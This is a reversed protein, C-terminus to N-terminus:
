DRSGIVVKSYYLKGEQLISLFYVGEPLKDVEIDQSSKPAQIKMMCQGNMAYLVMEEVPLTTEVRLSTRAPNPYIRAVSNMSMLGDIVGREFNILHVTRSWETQTGNDAVVTWKAAVNDGNPLFAGFGDIIEQYTFTISTDVGSSAEMVPILFDGTSLDFLISYTPISGSNLPKSAFWNFTLTQNPSGEITVTTNTLPSNLKFSDLEDIIVDEVYRPLLRYGQNYPLSGDEQGGLGVITFTGTPASTNALTSTARVFIEFTDLSVTNYVQFASGSGAVLWVFPPNVFAVHDIRVLDNEHVEGVTNAMVPNKMLASTKLLRVTDLMDLEVLGNSQSLRGRVRVSDGETITYGFDPEGALALTSIGATEDILTFSYGSTLTNTGYVVGSVEFLSDMSIARFDLDLQKIAAIKTYRYDNERIVLDFSDILGPDAGNLMLGLRNTRFQPGSNNDDLFSIPIYLTDPTGPHFIAQPGGSYSFHPGELATVNTQSSINVIVTSSGKNTISVGISDNHGEHYNGGATLFSITPYLLAEGSVLLQNTFAGLSSIQVTDFFTGTTQPNMRVDVVTPNITGLTPTINGSASYSGGNISIEFPPNVSIVIDGILNSGGVFFGSPASQTNVIVQGFDGNFTSSYTRISPTGNNVLFAQRGNLYPDFNTRVDSRIWLASDCIQGRLFASSGISDGMYLYNDYEPLTLANVGNILGSPLASNNVNTANPEWKSGDFNVAFLFTPSAMTGQFVLIQDGDDSLDDLKGQVISGYTSTTSGQDNEFHVLTGAPLNTNAKWTMSDETRLFSNVTAMWGMDTFMIETGSLVDTLLLLGFEDPDDSSLAVIAVDGASLTSQASTMNWGTFLLMFCVVVRKM